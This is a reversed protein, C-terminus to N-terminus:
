RVTSKSRHSWQNLAVNNNLLFIELQVRIERTIGIGMLPPTVDRRKVGLGIHDWKSVWRRAMVGM